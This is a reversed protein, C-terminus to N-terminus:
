IFNFLLMNNYDLEVKCANVNQKEKFKVNRFKINEYLQALSDEKDRNHYVDKPHLRSTIIIHKLLLYPLNEVEADLM